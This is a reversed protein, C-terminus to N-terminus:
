CACSRTPRAGPSACAPIPSCASCAAAPRGRRRLRTGRRHDRLHLRQPRQAPLEVERHGARARRRLRRRQGARLPAQRAQYGSGQTDAGPNLWSQVRDSRYGESVALVAAPWRRGGGALQPVGAAAPGRVLAPRAPHHGAVGDARPRAAARDPVTRAGRRAGAPLADRAAVRTGPPAGGAPARGLDRLRDQGAGVAAHLVRRRRVLRPLRQGGQRNGPDAGPDAARDHVRLGPVGAPADPQGAHAARRLLRGPRRDDVAGAQRLDGVALRGRRLLARRVGVAGHDARAHGAARGGRHDPPVVDDPPGALRRVPHAPRHRDARGRTQDAAGGDPRTM